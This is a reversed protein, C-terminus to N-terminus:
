RGRKARRLYDDVAVRVIEQLTSEEEAARIKARRILGHPLRITLKDREQDPDKKAKAKDVM